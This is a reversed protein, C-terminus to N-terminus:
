FENVFNGLSRLNSSAGCIDKTSRLRKINQCHFRNMCTCFLQLEHRRDIIRLPCRKLTKIWIHSKPFLKFLRTMAQWEAWNPKPTTNQKRLLSHLRWLYSGVFCKVSIKLCVTNYAHVYIYIHITIIGSGLVDCYWEGLGFDHARQTEGIQMFRRLWFM